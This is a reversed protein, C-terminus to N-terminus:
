HQNFYVSEGRKLNWCRLCKSCDNKCKFANSPIEENLTPDKFSVYSVPLDNPNEIKFNKDWHSFIIILNKPIENEKMFDNVIEFQKTFCLFKTNKVKKAIEVMMKLFDKNVIDGSSFWRFYKYAVLKNNLFSLIYKKTKESDKFFAQLNNLASLKVNKFLFTGKCAYCRKKCPADKRCTIIAPLNFSPILNGLKSNSTSITIKLDEM